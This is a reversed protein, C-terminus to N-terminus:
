KPLLRKWWKGKHYPYSHVVHLGAAELLDQWERRTAFRDIPQHHDPGYGSRIAKWITGSYYLNPLLLWAFCKEELLRHMEHLGGQLDTLHELSGLNYIHHFSGDAFPTHAGDAQCLHARPCRTRAQNLAERSIDIGWAQAGVETVASLAGGIGCGIDLVRDGSGVGALTTVWRYLKVSDQFPSTRYLADYAQGVERVRPLPKM